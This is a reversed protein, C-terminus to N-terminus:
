CVQVIVLVLSEPLHLQPCLIHLALIHQGVEVYANLFGQMKRQVPQQESTKSPPHVAHQKAALVGSM